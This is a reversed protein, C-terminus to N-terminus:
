EGEIKTMGKCMVAYNGQEICRAMKHTKDLLEFPKTKDISCLGSDSIAGIFFRVHDNQVHDGVRVENNNLDRLFEKM